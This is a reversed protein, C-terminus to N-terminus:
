NSQVTAASVSVVMPHCTGDVLGPIRFGPVTGGGYLM